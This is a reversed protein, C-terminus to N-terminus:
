SVSVLYRTAFLSVVQTHTKGIAHCLYLLETAFIILMQRQITAGYFWFELCPRSVLEQSNRNVSLKPLKRWIQLGNKIGNPYHPSFPLPGTKKFRTALFSHHKCVDHHKVEGAFLSISNCNLTNYRWWEKNLDHSLVRNTSFENEICFSTSNRQFIM